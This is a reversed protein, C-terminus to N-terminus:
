DLATVACSREAALRTGPTWDDDVSVYLVQGQAGRRLTPQRLGQATLCRHLERVPVTEAPV